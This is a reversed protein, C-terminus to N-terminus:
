KKLWPMKEVVGWYIHDAMWGGEGGKQFGPDAGPSQVESWVSTDYYIEHFPRLSLIQSLKGLLGIAIISSM